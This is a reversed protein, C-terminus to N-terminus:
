RTNYPIFGLQTIHFTGDRCAGSLGSLWFIILRMTSETGFAPVCTATHTHTGGDTPANPMQFEKGLGLVSTGPGDVRGVTGGLCEGGQQREQGHRQTAGDDSTQGSGIRVEARATLRDPRERGKSKGAQRGAQRGAPPRGKGPRVKVKGLTGALRESETMRM